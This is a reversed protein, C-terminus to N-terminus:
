QLHRSEQTKQISLATPTFFFKCSERQLNKERLLLRGSTLEVFFPTRRRGDNRRWEYFGDAM